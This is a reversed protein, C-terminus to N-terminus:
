QATSSTQIAAKLPLKTLSLHLYHDMRLSSVYLEEGVELAGTTASAEGTPDQISGLIKGTSDFAVVHGYPIVKPRAWSPFRQVIKRVFPKEALADVPKSRSSILGLWYRGDQGRDLNDPFGPLNDLVVETTGKKPGRLHYAIVRYSSTENVMVCRDFPCMAVGNAFQLGDLLVKTEKTRPYYAILRGYGGHEMVDLLSAPYTGGYEEAGFKTSADSFYITGDAAIDLDDAYKITQGDVSNTLVTMEGSPSYSLLGRYADAVILNSQADFMLGLPRGSTEVWRKPKEGPKARLIWGEHTSIYILGDPGLALDEPGYLPAVSVTQAGTMLRNESFDGTYGLNKPAKWAVPEVPVPWVLLYIVSILLIGLALKWAKSM